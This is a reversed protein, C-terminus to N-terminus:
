TFRGVETVGADGARSTWRAAISYVARRRSRRRQWVRIAKSEYVMLSLLSALLKKKM